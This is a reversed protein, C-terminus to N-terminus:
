VAFVEDKVVHLRIMKPRPGDDDFHCHVAEIVATKLDAM